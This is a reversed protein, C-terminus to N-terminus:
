APVRTRLWEYVDARMAPVIEHGADYSRMEMDSARRRLQAAYEEVRAPPYFEDRAGCLHLVSTKSPAYVESTEWDGPLGGCVGIVGRVVDTHTFVFRYNLAVSQSFGLLFVQDRAISVEHALTEILDLLARHHLAVSEEAHFNTLWGFGYRLPAGERKVPKLHQHFGQLAAVAFGQPVLQRAERMMWTKNDGYGHLAILLPCPTATERPLELNYYLKIEAALTRETKNKSDAHDNM